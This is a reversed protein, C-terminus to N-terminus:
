TSFVDTYINVSEGDFRIGDNIVLLVTTIRRDRSHRNM